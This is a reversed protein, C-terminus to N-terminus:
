ISINDLNFKTPHPPEYPHITLGKELLTYVYLSASSFVHKQFFVYVYFGYIRTLFM